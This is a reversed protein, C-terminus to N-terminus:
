IYPPRNMEMRQKMWLIFNFESGYGMPPSIWEDLTNDDNDNNNIQQCISEFWAVSVNISHRLKRKHIDNLPLQNHTIPYQIASNMVWKM